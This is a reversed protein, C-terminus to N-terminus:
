SHKEFTPFRSTPLYESKPLDVKKGSIKIGRKRLEQRLDDKSMGKYDRTIFKQKSKSPKAVSVNMKSRVSAIDM